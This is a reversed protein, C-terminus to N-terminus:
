EAAEAVKTEWRPLEIEFIAGGDRGNRGRIKGGFSQVLGYSISLGLGMGEGTAKTSYFPEFVKDPADIGPGNDAVSLRVPDSDEAAIQIKPEASEAMADVANTILNLVVQQLRVEGGRVWLAVEPLDLSLAVGRRQLQTEALDVAARVSHKLDVRNLQEKEQGAFARFTKIIRGMRRTLEGVRDLNKAAAKADGRDLFTVANDAFSQVAMLPQNLEHSIGASMKGLASLKGAQILDEQARKLAREADVREAVESRLQANTDSLARTRQAVRSELVENARKLVRRQNAVGLFAAGLLLYAFGAIAAQQVAASTAPSLDVLADAAVGIVPLDQRVRIGRRPLYRGASVTLIEHGRLRTVRAPSFTSGDNLEGPHFARGVLESRNSFFIVNAPDTMFVAPTSGRFEAEIRDLDILAVLARSVPGAETFIPAALLFARHDFSTSYSLHRGTAGQFPHQLFPADIWASVPDGSASALVRRDGDLLVFDLAGSLDAARLLIRQLDDAPTTEDRLRPDDALTVALARYSVLENVLRDSALALDSRGRQELEAVSRSFAAFWVAGVLAVLVTAYLSFGFVRVM